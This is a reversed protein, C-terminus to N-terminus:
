AFPEVSVGMTRSGKERPPDHDRKEPHVVIKPAGTGLRLEEDLERDRNAHIDAAKADIDDINVQSSRDVDAPHSQRECNEPDYANDVGQIQEIAQISESGTDCQDGHDRGAEDSKLLPM